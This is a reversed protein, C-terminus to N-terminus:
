AGFYHLAAATRLRFNRLADRGGNFRELWFGAVQEIYGAGVRERAAALDAALDEVIPIYGDEIQLKRKVLSM